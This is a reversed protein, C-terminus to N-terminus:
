AELPYAAIMQEVRYQEVINPMTAIKAMLNDLQSETLRNAGAYTLVTDRDPKLPVRNGNAKVTQFDQHIPITM